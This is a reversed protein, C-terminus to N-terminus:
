EGADNGIPQVHDWEAREQLEAHWATPDRRLDAFSANIQDLLCTRRYAEVAAALVAQLSEGRLAALDRLSQMTQEPIRTMAM